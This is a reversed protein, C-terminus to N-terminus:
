SLFAFCSAWHICVSFKWSDGCCLCNSPVVASTRQLPLFVPCVLFLGWLSGMALKCLLSVSHNHRAMSMPVARSVRFDCFGTPLFTPNRERPKGELLLLKMRISLMLYLMFDQSGEGEGFYLELRAPNHWFTQNAQIFILSANM